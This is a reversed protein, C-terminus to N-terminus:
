KKYLMQIISIVHSTCFIFLAFSLRADVRIGRCLRLQAPAAETLELFDLMARREEVSPYKILETVVFSRMAEVHKASSEMLFCPLLISAFHHSLGLVACMVLHYEGSIIKELLTSDIFIVWVFLIIWIFTIVM